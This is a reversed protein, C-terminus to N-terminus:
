PSCEYSYEDAELMEDIDCKRESLGGNKAGKEKVQEGANVKEGENDILALFEVAISNDQIPSLVKDQAVSDKALTKKIDSTIRKRKCPHLATDDDRDGRHTSMAFRRRLEKIKKLSERLEPNVPIFQYLFAVLHPHPKPSSTLTFSSPSSPLPHLALRLHLTCGEYRVDWRSWVGCSKEAHKTRVRVSEPFIELLDGMGSSGWM